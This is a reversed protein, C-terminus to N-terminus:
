WASLVRPSECVRAQNVMARLSARREQCMRLASPGAASWGGVVSWREAWAWGDGVRELRAALERLSRPVWAWRPPGGCVSRGGESWVFVGDVMGEGAGVVARPGLYVLADVSGGWVRM